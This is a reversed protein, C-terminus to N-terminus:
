DEEELSEVWEDWGIYFSDMDAQTFNDTVTFFGKDSVKNIKSLLDNYQSSLEQNIILMDHHQDLFAESIGSARALEKNEVQLLQMALSLAQYTQTLERFGKEYASAFQESTALENATSILIARINKYDAALAEYNGQLIAYNNSLEQFPVQDIELGDPEYSPKTESVSQVICTILLILSIISVILFRYAIAQDGMNRLILKAKEIM